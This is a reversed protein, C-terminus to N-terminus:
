WCDCGDDDYYTKQCRFCHRVRRGRHFLKIDTYREAYAVATESFGKKSYVHTRGKHVESKLQPLSVFGAKAEIHDEGLLGWLKKRIIDPNGSKGLHQGGTRAQVTRQYRRGVDYSSGRRKGYAM